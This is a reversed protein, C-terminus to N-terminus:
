TFVRKIANIQDKCAKEWSFKDSLDQSANECIKQFDNPNNYSIRLLEICKMAMQNINKYNVRFV